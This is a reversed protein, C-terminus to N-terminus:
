RVCHPWDGLWLMSVCCCAKAYMKKEAQLKTHPEKAHQWVHLDMYDSGRDLNVVAGGDCLFKRPLRWDCRGKKKNGWLGM